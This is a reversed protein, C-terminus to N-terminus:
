SVSDEKNVEISGVNVIKENNTEKSKIQEELNSILENIRKTENPDPEGKLINQIMKVILALHIYVETITLIKRNYRAIDEASSIDAMQSLDNDLKIYLKLQDCKPHAEEYKQAKTIRKQMKEILKKFDEPSKIIVPRM